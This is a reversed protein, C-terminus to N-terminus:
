RRVFEKQKEEQSIWIHYLINDEVKFYQSLMIIKKITKEEKLLISSTLYMILNKALPERM